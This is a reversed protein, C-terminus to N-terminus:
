FTITLMWRFYRYAITFYFFFRLCLLSSVPQSERSKNCKKESEEGLYELIEFNEQPAHIITKKARIKVFNLKPQVVKVAPDEETDSIVICEDDDRLPQFYFQIFEFAFNAKAM